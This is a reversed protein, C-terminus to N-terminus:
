QQAEENEALRIKRDVWLRMRAWRAEPSEDRRVEDNEFEVEQVLCEAVGLRAALWEHETSDIDKADPWQRALAVAGLTCCAGDETVFDGRVLAKEPLADLADRLERLLQQGRRGRIASAVRGRWRGLELNGLDCTYGSRSM